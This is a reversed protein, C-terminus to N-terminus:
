GEFSHNRWFGVYSKGVVEEWFQETSVYTQVNVKHPPTLLEDQSSAQSSDETDSDQYHFEQVQVAKNRKRKAKRWAKKSLSAPLKVFALVALNLLACPCCFVAATGGAVEGFRSSGHDKALSSQTRTNLAKSGSNEVRALRLNSVRPLVSNPMRSTSRCLIEM